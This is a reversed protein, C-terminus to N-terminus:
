LDEHFSVGASNFAYDIRGFEKVTNEIMADVSEENAVDVQLTLTQYKPNTALTKSESAAQRAAAVNMDAFVM